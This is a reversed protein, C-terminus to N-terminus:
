AEEKKLIDTIRPLKVTIGFGGGSPTYFNIRGGLQETRERMGLLGYSTQAVPSEEQLGSGNDSISLAVEDEDYRLEVEVKTAGSHRVVNTLSEQFIRFLAITQMKDLDFKCEESRCTVSCQIGVRKTFQEAQWELAACLGLDDLITPRLDTIVRRTVTTAHDVLQSMSEVQKLYQAAEKNMSMKDALWNVDMKLATLTGGLDDHIERAISAKEEERVTLLHASLNRLERESSTHDSIVKKLHTAMNNIGQGLNNLEAVHASVSVLTDFHGNGIMQVANSMECIPSTIRRSALYRLFFSMSFILMMSVTMVWLMESKLKNTRAWSMEIIVAGVQKVAPSDELEDLTVQAPIIPQYIWLNEDRSLIPNQLNVLHKFGDISRDKFNVSTQPKALTVDFIAAEPKDAFDGSDVLSESDANFIFVGHVDQQQLVGQALNKLLPQNNSFVAYESSSALQRAILKGREMLSNDADEFRGRLFYVELGVALILLPILTLWVIYQRISFQKM